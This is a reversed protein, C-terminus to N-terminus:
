WLQEIPESSDGTVYGNAFLCINVRAFDSEAYSFPWKGKRGNEYYAFSAEHEKKYQKGTYSAPVLKERKLCDAIAEYHDKILEPNGVQHKYLDGITASHELFCNGSDNSYKEEQEDTGSIHQAEKKLGKGVDLFFVEKYGLDLLCQKYASLGTEYDSRSVKGTDAVRQVAAKQTDSMFEGNEDLRRRAYDQISAAERELRVADASQAQTREGCGAFSMAMLLAVIGASFRLGLSRYARM